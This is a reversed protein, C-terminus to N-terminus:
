GTANASVTVTGSDASPNGQRIYAGDNRGSSSVFDFTRDGTTERHAMAWVLQDRRLADRRFTAGPVDFLTVTVNEHYGPELYESAGIVSGVANGQLIRRDHIAVYGGQPLFVSDVTVATGNSTHAGLEVLADRSVDLKALASSHDTTVGVVDDRGTEFARLTEIM